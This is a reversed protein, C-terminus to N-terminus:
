TKIKSRIEGFSRATVIAFLHRGESRLEWLEGLAKKEQADEGSILHAGKYEM